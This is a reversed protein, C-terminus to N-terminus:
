LGSCFSFFFFFFASHVFFLSPISFFCVFQLSQLNTMVLSRVYVSNILLNKILSLFLVHVNRRKLILCVTIEFRLGGSYSELKIRFCTFVLWEQYNAAVLSDPKHKKGM